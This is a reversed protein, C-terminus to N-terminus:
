DEEWPITETEGFVIFALPYKIEIWDNGTYWDKPDKSDKSELARIISFYDFTFLGHLLIRQSSSKGNMIGELWTDSDTGSLTYLKLTTRSKGDPSVRAIVSHGGGTFKVWDKNVYGVEIIAFNGTKGHVLFEYQNKTSNYRLKLTLDNIIAATTSPQIHRMGEIAMLFKDFLVEQNGTKMKIAPHIEFVHNPNAADKSGQAHETFIRLFGTVECTKDMFNDDLYEPWVVDRLNTESTATKGPPPFKCLNPPEVVIDNPSGIQDEPTGAIHSECDDGLKHVKSTRSDLRIKLTPQITRLAQFSQLYQKSIAFDFAESEQILSQLGASLFLLALTFLSACIVKKFGKKM